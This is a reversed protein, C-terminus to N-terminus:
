SACRGRSRSWGSQISDRFSAVARPFVKGDSRHTIQHDNDRMRNFLVAWDIGMNKLHNPVSKYFNAM